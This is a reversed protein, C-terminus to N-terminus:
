RAVRELPVDFSRLEQLCRNCLVVGSRCLWDALRGGVYAAPTRCNVGCWGSCESLRPLAQRRVPSAHLRNQNTKIRDAALYTAQDKCDRQEPPLSGVRAIGHHTARFLLETADLVRKLARRGCNSCLPRNLAFGARANTWFEHPAVVTTGSTTASPVVGVMVCHQQQQHQRKELPSTDGHKGVGDAYSGVFTARVLGDGGISNNSTTRGERGSQVTSWTPRNITPLHHALPQSAGGGLCPFSKQLQRAPCSLLCRRGAVRGVWRYTPAELFRITKAVKIKRVEVDEGGADQARVGDWVKAHGTETGVAAEPIPAVKQGGKALGARVAGVKKVHADDRKEPLELKLRLRVGPNKGIATTTTVGTESLHIRLYPLVLTEVACALGKRETESFFPCVVKANGGNLTSPPPPAFSTTEGLNISTVSNLSPLDGGGLHGGEKRNHRTQRHGEGNNKSSRTKSSLVPATGPPSVRRDDWLTDVTDSGTTSYPLSTVLSHTQRLAQLVFFSHPLIGLAEEFTATGFVIRAARSEPTHAVTCASNARELNRNEHPGGIAAGNANPSSTGYKGILCGSPLTRITEPGVEGKKHDEDGSEMCNESEESVSMLTTVPPAHYCYGIRLAGGKKANVRPFCTSSSSQAPSSEGAKHGTTARPTGEEKPSMNLVDCGVNRHFKNNEAGIVADGSEIECGDRDAAAFDSQEAELGWNEVALQQIPAAATPECAEEKSGKKHEVLVGNEMLEEISIVLDATSGMLELLDPIEGFKALAAWGESGIIEASTRESALRWVGSPSVGSCSGTRPLCGAHCSVSAALWHLRRAASVVEGAFRSRYRDSANRCWDDVSRSWTRNWGVGVRSLGRGDEGQRARAKHPTRYHITAKTADLRRCSNTGESTRSLKAAHGHLGAREQRPADTSGDDFHVRLHEAAIPAGGGLPVCVAGEGALTVAPVMSYTCEGVTVDRVLLRERHEDSVQRTLLARPPEVGLANALATARAVTARRADQLAARLQVISSEAVAKAASM